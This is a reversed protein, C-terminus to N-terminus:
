LPHFDGGSKEPPILSTRWCLVVCDRLLGIVLQPFRVDLTQERHEEATEGARDSGKRGGIKM